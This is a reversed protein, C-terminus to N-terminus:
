RMWRVLEEFWEEPVEPPTPADFWRAVQISEMASANCLEGKYNYHTNWGGEMTFDLGNISGNTMQVLYTGDATPETDRVNIWKNM